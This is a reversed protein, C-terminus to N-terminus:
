NMREMHRFGQTLFFLMTFLTGNYGMHILVSTAVSRTRARVITLVLGVGFIILLPAWAHALQEQHISSFGIATLVIAAPVGTWRALAPYLFGRFFFEEVFPAVFIGFAALLYGSAPNKFYQDIPLSKPTWRQLLGSFLQSALALAVGSGLATLAAHLAPMNWQIGQLFGSRHRTWVIFVMFVVVLLYAVSQAPIIILADRALDKPALNRAGPASYVVALALVTCLVMAFFAFGAILAVDVLDVITQERGPGSVPTGPGPIPEGPGPVPQGSAPILEGQAPQVPQEPPIPDFPHL